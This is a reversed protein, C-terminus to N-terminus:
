VEKNSLQDYDIPFKLLLYLSFVSRLCGVNLIFYTLLSCYLRNDVSSCDLDFNIPRIM